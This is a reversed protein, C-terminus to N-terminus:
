VRVETTRGPYGSSRTNSSKLETTGRSTAVGAVQTFLVGAVAGNVGRVDGGGVEEEERRADEESVGVVGGCGSWRIRGGDSGAPAAEREVQLM